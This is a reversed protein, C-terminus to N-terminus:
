IVYNFKHKYYDLYDQLILVAALKDKYQKRKQRTYGASILTAEAKKTTYQENVYIYPIQFRQILMKTFEEVMLTRESKEGSIKLPYGIVFGDIPYISLFYEVRKIVAHFDCESMQFNELGSAIIENEDTIAFGCSKTGLDFALKRM